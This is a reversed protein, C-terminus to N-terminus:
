TTEREIKQETKGIRTLQFLLIRALNNYAARYFKSKM